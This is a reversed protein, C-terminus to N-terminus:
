WDTTIFATELEEINKYRKQTDGNTGVRYFKDVSESDKQYHIKGTMIFYILRTLAYIEHWIKYNHFGVKELDSTDNFYGKVSTYVSTLDSNPLKVLGFDSIKAVYKVDDYLFILVNKPSIDRHFLHRRHIYKFAKLIQMVLWKRTKVDLQPTHTILEELTQNALEMTYENKKDNYKFVRVIYPSNLSKMTLFENRFRKLEDDTLEKKARKLVFSTDYNDDKYKFVHAYSGEGILNMSVYYNRPQGLEVIDQLEFIPEYMMIRIMQTDAPVESGYNEALFGLCSQSLEKYKPTMQFSYETNSLGEELDQELQLYYRLNRSDEAKFHSGICKMLDTFLINIQKQLFSLIYRFKEDTITSYLEEELLLDNPQFSYSPHLKQYMSKIIVKANQM